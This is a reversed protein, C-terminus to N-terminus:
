AANTAGQLHASKLHIAGVISPLLVAVALFTSRAGQTFAFVLIGGALLLLLLGCLTRIVRLTKGFRTPIVAPLWFPLLTAFFLAFALLRHFLDLVRRVVESPEPVLVAPPTGVLWALAAAILASVMLLSARQTMM